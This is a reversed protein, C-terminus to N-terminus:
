KREKFVDSLPNPSKKDLPNKIVLNGLKKWSEDAKKISEEINKYNKKEYWRLKGGQEIRKRAVEFELFTMHQEIYKKHKKRVFKKIIKM